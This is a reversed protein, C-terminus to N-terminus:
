KSNKDIIANIIQSANLNKFQGIVSQLEKIDVDKFKETLSDIVYNIKDLIANFNRNSLILQKRTNIMENAEDFIFEVKQGVYEMVDDFIPTNLVLDSLDEMNEPLSVDTFHTIVAARKAFDILEPHYIEIGVSKAPKGDATTEPADFVMNYIEAVMQVRENLSIHRNVKVIIEEGNHNYKLEIPEEQNHWDILKKTQQNDM